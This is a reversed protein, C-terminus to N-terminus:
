RSPLPKADESLITLGPGLTRVRVYAAEDPVDVIVAYPSGTVSRHKLTKQDSDLLAVEVEDVGQPNGTWTIKITAPEVWAATAVDTLKVPAPPTWVPKVATREPHRGYIHPYGPAYFLRWPADLGGPLGHCGPCGHGGHGGHGGAPAAYPSTPTVVVLIALYVAIIPLSLKTAM